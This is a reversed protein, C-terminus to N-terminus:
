CRQTLFHGERKIYGATAPSHFSQNNVMDLIRKSLETGFLINTKGMQAATSNIWSSDSYVKCGGLNWM